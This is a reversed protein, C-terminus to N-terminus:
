WWDERPYAFEPKAQMDNQKKTGLLNVYLDRNPNRFAGSDITAGVMTRACSLSAESPDKYRFGSLDLFPFEARSHKFRCFKQCVYRSLLTQFLTQCFADEFM